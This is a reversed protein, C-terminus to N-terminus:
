YQEDNELDGENYKVALFMEFVKSVVNISDNQQCKEEADVENNLEDSGFSISRDSYSRNVRSLLISCLSFCCSLQVFQKLIFPEYFVHLLFIFHFLHLVASLLSLFVSFEELLKFLFFFLKKISSLM